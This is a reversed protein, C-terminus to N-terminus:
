IRRFSQVTRGDSLPHLPLRVSPRLKAFIKELSNGGLPTELYTRAPLDQFAKDFRGCVEAGVVDGRIEGVSLHVQSVRSALWPTRREAPEFTCLEPEARSARRRAYGRPERPSGLESSRFRGCEDLEKARLAIPRESELPVLDRRHCFAHLTRVAALERREDNVSFVFGDGLKQLAIRAGCSSPV